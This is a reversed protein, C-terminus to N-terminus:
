DRPSPSTYLLCNWLLESLSANAFDIREQNRLATWNNPDDSDEVVSKCRMCFTIGKFLFARCRKCMQEDNFNKDYNKYYAEEKMAKDTKIVRTPWIEMRRGTPIFATARSVATGVEVMARRDGSALLDKNHYFM